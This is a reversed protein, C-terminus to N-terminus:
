GPGLHPAFIQRLPAAIDEVERVEGTEVSLVLSVLRQLDARANVGDEGFASARPRDLAAALKRESIRAAPTM